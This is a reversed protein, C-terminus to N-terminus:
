CGIETGHAHDGVRGNFNPQRKGLPLIGRVKEV